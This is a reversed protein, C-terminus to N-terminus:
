GAKARASSRKKSKLEIGGGYIIPNPSALPAATVDLFECVRTLEQGTSCARGFELGADRNHNVYELGFESFERDGLIIFKSLSSDNGWGFSDLQEVALDDAHSWYAFFM